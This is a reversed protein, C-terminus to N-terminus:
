FLNLSTLWRPFYRQSVRHASRMHGDLDVVKKFLKLCYQCLLGKHVQKMHLFLGHLDCVSKCVAPRPAVVNRLTRPTTGNQVPGYCTLRGVRPSSRLPARVRTGLANRTGPFCKQALDVESFHTGPLANRSPTQCISREFLANRFTREPHTGPVRTGHTREPAGSLCLSTM